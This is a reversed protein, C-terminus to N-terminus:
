LVSNPGLGKMVWDKGAKIISRKCRVAESEHGQFGSNGMVGCVGKIVSGGGMPIGQSEERSGRGALHESIM